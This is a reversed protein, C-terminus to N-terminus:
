RQSRTRRYEAFQGLAESLDSFSYPKRLISFIAPNSTAQRYVDGLYGTALIAMIEPDIEQLKELVELGNMKPMNLDLLLLDINGAERQFIELAAEGDESVHVLCGAEELMRKSIARIMAEDEVILVRLALDSSIAPRADQSQTSEVRQDLKPLAITLIAGGGPANEATVIGDHERITGYVMALGLGSGGSGSVISKTSFYPEFIRPLNEEPIGPGTDRFQLLFYNDATIEFGKLCSIGPDDAAVQVIKVSFKGGDPMAQVANLCINMIASQLLNPTGLVFCRDPPFEASLQVRRDTTKQLIGLTQSVLEKVDTPEPPVMRLQSFASLKDILSAAQATAANIQKMNRSLEEDGPYTQLSLDSYGQIIALNNNIDHAIGAALQGIARMKEGRALRENIAIEETADRFVLVVGVVEGGVSRIPAGSDKVDYETGDRAILITHNALGVVNGTQLVKQVPNEAQKRTEKNVINFVRHLDQGIAEQPTWGTLKSAVPNMHGIRGHTDTSIVADGISDLTIRLKEESEQLARQSEFRDHIDTIMVVVSYVRGQQDFIPVYQANQMRESKSAPLLVDFNIKEGNLASLFNQKIEPWFEPGVVKSVHTDRDPYGWRELYANNSTQLKGATDYTSVLAPITDLIGKLERQAGDLRKVMPKFLALWVVCIVSFLLGTLFTLLRWVNNANAAKIRGLLAERELLTDIQAGSRFTVRIATSWHPFGSLGVNRQADRLERAREYLEQPINERLGQREARSLILIPWPFRELDELDELYAAENEEVASLAERLRKQIRELVLGANADNLTNSQGILWGISDGIERWESIEAANVM